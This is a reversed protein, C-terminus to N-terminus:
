CHRSLPRYCYWASHHCKVMNQISWDLQTVNSPIFRPFKIDQWLIWHVAPGPRSIVKSDLVQRPEHETLNLQQCTRTLPCVLDVAIYTPLQAEKVELPRYGSAARGYTQVCDCLPV